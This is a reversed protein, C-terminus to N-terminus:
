ADVLTATAQDLDKLTRLRTNKNEQKAKSFLDRLVMSLVDLSDDQSDSEFHNAFAVLTAM